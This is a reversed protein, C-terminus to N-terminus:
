NRDYGLAKMEIKLQKVAAKIQPLLRKELALSDEDSLKNVKKTPFDSDRFPVLESFKIKKTALEM